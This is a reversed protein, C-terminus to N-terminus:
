GNRGHAIVPEFERDRPRGRRLEAIRQPDVRPPGNGVREAVRGVREVPRHYNCFMRYHVLNRYDSDALLIGIIKM